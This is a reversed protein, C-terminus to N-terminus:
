RRGRKCGIRLTNSTGGAHGRDIIGDGNINLGGGDFVDGSGRSMGDYGGGSAGHFVGSHVVCGSRRNRRRRNM